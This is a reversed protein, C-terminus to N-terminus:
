WGTTQVRQGAGETKELHMDLSHRRSLWGSRWRLLSLLLRSRGRWLAKGCTLPPPARRGGSQGGGARVGAM